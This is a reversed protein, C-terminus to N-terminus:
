TRTNMNDPNTKKQACTSTASETFHTHECVHVNLCRYVIVQGLQFADRPNCSVGKTESVYRASAAGTFVQCILLSLPTTILSRKGCKSFSASIIFDFCGLGEVRLLFRPACPAPAPCPSATQLRPKCCGMSSDTM